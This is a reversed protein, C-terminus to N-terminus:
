GTVAAIVVPLMLATANNVGHLMVGSWISRSWRFLLATLVVGVVSLPVIAVITTLMAIRRMRRTTAADPTGRDKDTM